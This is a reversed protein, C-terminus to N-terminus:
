LIGVLHLLDRLYITIYNLGLGIQFYFILYFLLLLGKFVTFKTLGSLVKREQNFNLLFMSGMMVIEFFVIDYFWRGEDNQTLILPLILFVSLSCLVLLVKRYLVPENKVVRKWYLFTYFILPSCVIINFIVIKMLFFFEDQPQGGIWMQGVAQRSGPILTNDLWLTKLNSSEFDNGLKLRCSAVISEIDPNDIRPHIIYLYVFLISVVMGTLIFTVAYRQKASKDEAYCFRYILLSVIIAFYMMPYAEHILVCTGALFPILFLVKDKIILLVMLLTIAMIYNDLLGFQTLEFGIHDLSIYVLVIFCFAKETEDKLLRRFFLIVSILFLLVGFSQILMIATPYEIKFCNRILSVFSGILGRRIVGYSYDMTHEHSQWSDTSLTYFYNRFIYIKGVVSLVFLLFFTKNSLTENGRSLQQKTKTSKTNKNNSMFFVAQIVQCHKHM